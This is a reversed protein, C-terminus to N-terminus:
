DRDDVSTTYMNDKYHDWHGSKEWLSRSLMIPTSIEVYDERQHVRRWYDILLNKLILGKPLYFPFGQGEDM